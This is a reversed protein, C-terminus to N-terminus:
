GLLPQGASVRPRGDSDTIDEAASVFEPEIIERDDYPEVYHVPQDLLNVPVTDLWQKLERWTM